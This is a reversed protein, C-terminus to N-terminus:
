PWLTVCPLLDVVSNIPHLETSIHKELEAYSYVLDSLKTGDNGRLGFMTKMDGFYKDYSEAKGYIFGSLTKNEESSKKGAKLLFGTCNNCYSADQLYFRAYKNPDLFVEKEKGDNGKVKAKGVLGQIFKTNLAKNRL